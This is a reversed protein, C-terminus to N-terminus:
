RIFVFGANITFYGQSPLDGAQFGHFYKSSINVSPGAGPDFIVGIEPRLAFHLARKEFSYMGLNTTQLSYMVGLGLGFFPTVNGEKNYYYDISGLVPFENSYRWQRGAYTINNQEYIGDPTEDFFTNWGIEIGVGLNGTVFNRYNLGIGRFSAPEIYDHMNATGFGISYEMSFLSKQSTANLTVLSLLSIFFLRKM